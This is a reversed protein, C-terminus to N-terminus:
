QIQRKIINIIKDLSSIEISDYMPLCLIRKSMNSSIPVIQVKDIYPLTELSPYFYRRPYIDNKNLENKVKLLIEETEFVVPFYAYNYTCEKNHKQFKLTKPLNNVYYDYVRKRESIINDINDLVCLGMAAQFENMKCNIGLCEISESSYIGFNIMHKIKEYLTDDKVIIAGGEITHFLKTSHFSITSIDGYSLISKDKYKVGFAHAADYIVKINHEKSIQEIKDIDCSNGFVHVPVIASTNKTIGESIKTYNINLTEKDIDIFKPNLGEWVLSSTTAVFSFPTTLVEGGLELAKYAIQLALTGNSVLIINRVGLYEELKEKLMNVYKGNNTLRGSKFIEDVYEKYKNVDPMYARTVNIM